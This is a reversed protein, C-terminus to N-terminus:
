CPCPSDEAYRLHLSNRRIEAESTLGEEYWVLFCFFCIVDDRGLFVRSAYVARSPEHCVDCEIPTEHIRMM